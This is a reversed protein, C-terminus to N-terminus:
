RAGILWPEGTCLGVSISSCPSKLGRRRSFVVSSSRCWSSCGRCVSPSHPDSSSRLQRSTPRSRVALTVVALSMLLPNGSGNPNGSDRRCALAVAEQPVGARRGRRRGQSARATLATPASGPVPASAGALSDSVANSLSARRIAPRGSPSAPEKVVASRVSSAEISAAQPLQQPRRRRWPGVRRRVICADRRGFARHAVERIERGVDGRDVGEVLTLWLLAEVQELVREHTRTHGEVEVDRAVDRPEGSLVHGGGMSAVAHLM